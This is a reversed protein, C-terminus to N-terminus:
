NKHHPLLRNRIIYATSVGLIVVVIYFMMATTYSYPISRLAGLIIAFMWSVMSVVGSGLLWPRRRMFEDSSPFHMDAHRHLRPIHWIHFVFGNIIIVAVITIKTLFKSSALFVDPDALFLGTGTIVLVVIGAWVMMSGIRMFHLETRSIIRDRISSFFMLDSMFAGGAGMAIGFLHGIFFLTHTDIM